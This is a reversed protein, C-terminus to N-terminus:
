WAPVSGPGARHGDRPAPLLCPACPARRATCSVPRVGLGATGPVPLVHAAGPRPCVPHPSFPRCVAVAMAEEMAWSCIEGQDGQLAALGGAAARGGGAAVGPGRCFGLTLCLHDPCSALLLPQSSSPNSPCPLGLGARLRRVLQPPEAQPRERGAEGVAAEVPRSFPQGPPLFRPPLPLAPFHEEKQGASVRSAGPAPLCSQAM